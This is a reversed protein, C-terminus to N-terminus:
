DQVILVPTGVNTYTVAEAADLTGDSNSGVLTRPAVRDLVEIAAGEFNQFHLGRLWNDRTLIRVGSTSGMQSGDIVVPAAVETGTQADWGLGLWTDGGTGQGGIVPPAMLKQGGIVPPSLVIVQTPCGACFLAPDFYIRNRGKRALGDPDKAVVQAREATTLAAVSLEGNDLDLAEALTLVDDRARVDLNSNVFLCADAGTPCATAASVPAQAAGVVVALLAGLGAASWRQAVTMRSM